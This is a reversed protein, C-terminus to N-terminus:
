ESEETKLARIIGACDSSDIMCDEKMAPGGYIKITKAAEELVQNRAQIMGTNFFELLEKIATDATKVRTFYTDDDLSIYRGCNFAACNVAYILNKAQERLPTNTIM